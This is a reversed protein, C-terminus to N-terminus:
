FSIGERATHEHRTTSRAVIHPFRVGGQWRAPPARYRGRPSECPPSSKARQDRSMHAPPNKQRALRPPEPRKIGHDLVSTKARNVGRSALVVGTFGCRREFWATQKHPTKVSVRVVRFRSVAMEYDRPHPSPAKRGPNRPKPRFRGHRGVRPALSALIQHNQASALPFRIRFFRRASKREGRTPYPM